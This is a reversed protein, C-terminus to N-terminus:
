STEIMLSPNNNRLPTASPGMTAQDLVELKADAM